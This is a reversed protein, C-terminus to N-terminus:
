DCFGLQTRFLVANFYFFKAAVSFCRWITQHLTWNYTSNFIWKSALKISMVNCKDNKKETQGNTKDFNRLLTWWQKLIFVCVYLIKPRTAGTELQTHTHKLTESEIKISKTVPFCKAPTKKGMQQEKSMAIQGRVMSKITNLISLVHGCIIGFVYKAFSYKNVVIRYNVCYINQRNCLSYCHFKMYIIFSRACRSIPM